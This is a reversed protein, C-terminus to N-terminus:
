GQLKKDIQNENLSHPIPLVPVSTQKGPATKSSPAGRPLVLSVQGEKHPQLQKPAGEEGNGPKEKIGQCSFFICPSLATLANSPL